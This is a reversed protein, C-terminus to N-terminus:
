PGVENADFALRSFAERDTRGLRRIETLWGFRQEPSLSDVSGILTTGVVHIGALTTARARTALDTQGTCRYFFTPFSATAVIRAPKQESFQVMPFQARLYAGKQAVANFVAQLRLPPAGLWIPYIVFLRDAWFIRELMHAIERETPPADNTARGVVFNGAIDTEGVDLRRVLCGRVRSGAAYADALAAGYREPGPDPNGNVVLVRRAPLTHERFLSRVGLIPALKM